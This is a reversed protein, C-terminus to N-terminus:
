RGGGRRGDEWGAMREELAGLRESLRSVEAALQRYEPSPEADGPERLVFTGRTTGKSIIGEAALLDLANRLTGPAVGYRLSLDRQPPMRSGVQIRGDKVQERLDAAIQEYAPRPDNIDPVTM